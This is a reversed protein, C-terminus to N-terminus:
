RLGERSNCADAGLNDRQTLSLERERDIAWDAGSLCVKTPDPPAYNHERGEVTSCPDHPPQYLGTSKKFIKGLAQRTQRAKAKKM